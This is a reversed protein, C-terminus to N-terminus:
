WLTCIPEPRTCHPPSACRKWAAVTSTSATVNVYAAFGHGAPLNRAAGPPALLASSQSAHPAPVYQGSAPGVAAAGHGSFKSQGVGVSFSAHGAPHTQAAPDVAGIHGAPDYQADAPTAGTAHPGPVYQGAPDVAGTGHAAPVHLLM